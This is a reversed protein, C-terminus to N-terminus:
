LSYLYKGAGKGLVGFGNQKVASTVVANARRFSPIRLDIVQGNSARHKLNSLANLNQSSLSIYPELERASAYPERASAHSQLLKLRKALSTRILHSLWHDLDEWQSGDDALPYFSAIGHFTKEKPVIGSGLRRLQNESLNGYIYSRLQWIFSVYDRDLSGLRNPNLTQRLPERLLTGYLLSAIHEKIRDISRNSLRAGCTGISHGLFEVKTTSVIEAAQNPEKVLLQIGPSKSHNVEAGIARANSFLLDTAETIKSYDPSWLVTDDAYRAYGVGIREFGRDLKLAAVNALLVSLSTGQLIGRGTRPEMSRLFQTILFEETPTLLLEADKITRLLTSHEISSFYNKFDFEAIFLRNRGSWESKIWTLADFPGRDPLYAYSHASLRQLNKKTISRLLYHRISEDVINFAVVERSMGNSKPISFREPSTPHYDRKRIAVATSHALQRRRSRVFFPNHLKDRSWLEPEEFSFSEHYSIDRNKRRRHELLAHNKAKQHNKIQDESRKSFSASLQQELSLRLNRPDPTKRSKKM